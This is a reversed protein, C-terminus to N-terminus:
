RNSPRFAVVPDKFAVAHMLLLIGSFEGMALPDIQPIAAVQSIQQVGFELKLQRPIDISPYQLSYARDITTTFYTIDRGRGQEKSIIVVHDSDKPVGM